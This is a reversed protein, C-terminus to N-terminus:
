EVQSSWQSVQLHGKSACLVTGCCRTPLHDCSRIDGDRHHFWGAHLLAPGYTCQYWGNNRDHRHDHRCETNSSFLSFLFTVNCCAYCNVIFLFKFARHNPHFNITKKKLYKRGLQTTAQVSARGVATVATVVYNLAAVCLLMPSVILDLFASLFEWMILVICESNYYNSAISSLM